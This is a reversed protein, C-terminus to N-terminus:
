QPTLAIAIHEYYLETRGEFGSDTAVIIWVEGAAGTQVTHTHTHQRQLRVYPPDQMDVSECPLGNAIHGIVSAATGGSTQQGTDVNLRWTGEDTLRLEPRTPTAGAKLTVGEGPAGGIGACDSPANSALTIVFDVRYTHNPMLGQGPGLRRTLYMLLDDSRNSGGIFYGRGDGLESPLARVGCDFELTPEMGPSYDAFGATWGQAGDDFDYEVRVPGGIPLLDCGFLLPLPLLGVVRRPNM